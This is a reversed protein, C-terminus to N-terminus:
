RRKCRSSIDVAARVRVRAGVTVASIAGHDGRAVVHILRGDQPLDLREISLEIAHYLVAVPSGNLRNQSM